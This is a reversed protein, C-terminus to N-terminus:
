IISIFYFNIIPYITQPGLHVSAMEFGFVFHYFLDTLTLEGLHEATSIYQGLFIYGNFYYAFVKKTLLLSAEQM